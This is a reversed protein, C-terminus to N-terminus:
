DFWRRLWLAINTMPWALRWNTTPDGAVFAIAEPSFVARVSPSTRLVDTADPLWREFPLPFSAKPRLMAETPVLDTFATRLLRKTAPLTAIATGCRPSGPSASAGEAPAREGRAYLLDIPLTAAFEAVVRDAFPTRGEVGALMASTNLRQLLSALNLRRQVDLHTRLDLPDGAEAHVRDLEAVLATAPGVMRAVDQGLVTPLLGPATWAFADAHWAGITRARDGREIWGQCQELAPGYGAFLEDAGEGSLAVKAFPRLREAVAHIAVENPTSLPVGLRDVMAIWGDAFRRRDVPAERHDTGLLAAMRRAVARDGDDSDEPEAGAAFTALSREGRKLQAAIITSDLGGSLLSAIPVDSVAHLEISRELIARLTSAAEHADISPDVAPPTWWREIRVRPADGSCDARMREGPGLTRVGAFLTRSGLTTRLSALYGAVVDWDPEIRAAPHALIARVESAVVLETGVISWVLPVVGLADRAALVTNTAPFWAAFAFMGRIREVAREGWRRLSRALLETDTARDLGELPEGAAALDRRLAPLDYLEGNFVLAIRKPDGESGLVFPQPNNGPAMIALRRHALWARADGWISADDPGREALTDRMACVEAESVSPPGGTSAILVIGCM